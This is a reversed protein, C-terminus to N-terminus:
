DCIIKIYGAFGVISGGTLDIYPMISIIGLYFILTVDLYENCTFYEGCASGSGGASTGCFYTLPIRINSVPGNFNIYFNSFFCEITGRTFGEGNLRNLIKKLFFFMGLTNKFVNKFRDLSMSNPIVGYEKLIPIAEEVNECAGIKEVYEYYDKVSIKEDFKRIFGNELLKVKTVTMMESSEDEIEIMDSGESIDVNSMERPMTLSAGLVPSISAGLFLFIIGIVLEKRFFMDKM